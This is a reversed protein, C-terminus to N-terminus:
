TRDRGQGKQRNKRHAVPAVTAGPVSIFKLPPEVISRAPNAIKRELMSVALRGAEASPIAMLSLPIGCADAGQEGFSVLSLDRPIELGSKAAALMVREARDYAVVGTPADEGQLIGRLAEIQGAGDLHGLRVVEHNPIGADNAAAVFGALRAEGSYHAFEGPRHRLDLYAISRHGAEILRGAAMRGATFDDFRVCDRGLPANFWVFPMRCGRLLQELREPYRHTYNVIAGDCFRSSLFSPLAERDTLEDDSCRGTTLRKGREELAACLSHLVSEPLHSRGPDKTLVLLVSDFRGKRVASASANALFGAERAVARINRAREAAGPWVEKNGGRLVRRVTTPSSGTKEVILSILEANTM